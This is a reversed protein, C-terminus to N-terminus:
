YFSNCHSTIAKGHVSLDTGDSNATSLDTNSCLKCIIM